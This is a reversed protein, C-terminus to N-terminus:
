WPGDASVGPQSPSVAAAPVVLSFTAGEGAASELMVSGGHAEAIRKVISLGLGSGKPKEGDPLATDLRVFEGFLRRQCELPIGPGSDRVWIRVKADHQEAGLRISGGRPTFKIANSVLNVVAEHLLRESGLALLPAPPQEVLTLKQDRQAALDRYEDAIRALLTAIPVEECLGELDAAELHALRDLDKMFVQSEQLRALARTVLEVQKTTVPGAFGRRVNELLMSAAAIPAKLNHLAVHLFDRRAASLRELATQTALLERDARRLSDALETMMFTTTVFLFGYSALLSAAFRLDLPASSLVAGEPMTPTLIGGVEGAVLLTMLSMAFATYLWAAVRSVMVSGLVIHLLFVAMFPSRAGGVLEILIALALYDTVMTAHRLQLLQRRTRLADKVQHALHGVAVVVATNIVAITVAVAVLAGLHLNGIGVVWRAFAAGGCILAAVSYRLRGHVRMQRALLREHPLEVGDGRADPDRLGFM